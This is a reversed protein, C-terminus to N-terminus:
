NCFFLPLLDPKGSIMSGHLVIISLQTQLIKKEEFHKIEPQSPIPYLLHGEIKKISQSYIPLTYLIYIYVHEFITM